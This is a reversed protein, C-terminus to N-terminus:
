SAASMEERAIRWDERARAAASSLALLEDGSTRWGTGAYTLRGVILTTEERHETSRHQRRRWTVRATRLARVTTSYRRSKTAFHGRFGLM